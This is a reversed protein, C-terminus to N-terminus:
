YQGKKLDSLTYSYKKISWAAKRSFRMNNRTNMLPKIVTTDIIQRVEKKSKNAPTKNQQKKVKSGLTKQAGHGANLPMFLVQMGMAAMVIAVLVLLCKKM